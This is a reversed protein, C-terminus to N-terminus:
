MYERDTGSPSGPLNLLWLQLPKPIVFLSHQFVPNLPEAGKYNIGLLRQKPIM